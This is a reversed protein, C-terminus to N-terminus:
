FKVGLRIDVMRPPGPYATVTPRTPSALQLGDLSYRNDLLNKGELAVTYHNDESNWNISANILNIVGTQTIPLQNAVNNYYSDSYDYDFLVKVKGPMNISPSYVFGVVVKAPIVGKIKNGECNVIATNALSCNFPSLYKSTLFAMNGYLQLPEFPQWTPELEIGQIRANSANSTYSNSTGPFFVPLQLGQYEADFLSSNILFKHDDTTFKVGIEYSDVTEAGYPTPAGPVGVVGTNTSPSIPNFGGSIYGETYSFYALLNPTAQWDIGVKPTLSNFVKAASQPYPHPFAATPIFYFQTFNAHEQTARLGFTLGIGDFLTYTAQGFVAYDTTMRNQTNPTSYPLLANALGHEDFYYFGLVGKLRNTTLTADLEESAFDDKLVSAGGTSQPAAVTPASSTMWFPEESFVRLLGYGTISSLTLVSNVEYSANLSMGINTLHQKMPGFLESTFLNRTPTAAPDVVSAGVQIPSGIAPDSTDIHYSVAGELRLKPTPTYLLKGRITQQDQNNVPRSYYPDTTWGDHTRSEGSLSFALVDPIIPGSVFARAAVLSYSGTAIDGGGTWTFSPSLTTIKIAGGATNKGYLTGQPGRLVEVGSVDFFDFFAGNLRPQYVDDIYIGVAPDFNIGGQEEDAGRMVIRVTTSSGTAPTIVLGPVQSGITQIGTVQRDQLMQPSLASVAVPTTEVTSKFREATVVIEGVSAGGSTADSSAQEGVSSNPSPTTQASAVMPGLGAGGVAVLAAAGLLLRHRDLNAGWKKVTEYVPLSAGPAFVEGPGIPM